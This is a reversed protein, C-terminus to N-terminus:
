SASSNTFISRSARMAAATMWIAYEYNGCVLDNGLDSFIFSGYLDVGDPRTQDLPRDLKRPGAGARVGATPYIELIDRAFLAGHPRLGKGHRVLSM